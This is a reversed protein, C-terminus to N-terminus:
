APKKDTIFLVSGQVTDSSSCTMILRNDGLCSYFLFSNDQLFVSNKELDFFLLVSTHSGTYEM